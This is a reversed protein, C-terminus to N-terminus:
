RPAKGGAYSPVPSYGPKQNMHPTVVTFRKRCQTCPAIRSEKFHDRPTKNIIVNEAACLPCSFRIVYGSRTGPIEPKEFHLTM